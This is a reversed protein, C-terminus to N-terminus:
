KVKTACPYMGCSLGALEIGGCVAPELLLLGFELLEPCVVFAEFLFAVVEAPGDVEHLLTSGHLTCRLDNITAREDCIAKLRWTM